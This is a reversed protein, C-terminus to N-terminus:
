GHHMEERVKDQLLGIARNERLFAQMGCGGDRTDCVIYPKGKVSWRIELLKQCLWCHITAGQATQVM